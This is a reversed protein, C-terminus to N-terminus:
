AGLVPLPFLVEDFPEGGLRPVKAEEALDLLGAFGHEILQHLDVLVALGGEDGKGVLVAFQLFHTDSAIGSDVVGGALAGHRDEVTPLMVSQASQQELVQGIMGPGFAELLHVRNVGCGVLGHTVQGLRCTEGCGPIRIVRALDDVAECQNSRRGGHLGGLRPSTGPRASIPGRFGERALVPLYGSHDLHAHTLVVANLARLAPSLPAWNVLVRTGGHTLLFKSGTVTGTGGLFTLQM